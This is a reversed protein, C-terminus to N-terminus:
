NSQKRLRTPKSVLRCLILSNYLFVRSYMINTQMYLYRYSYHLFQKINASVTSEKSVAIYM